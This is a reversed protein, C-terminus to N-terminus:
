RPGSQLMTCVVSGASSTNNVRWATIPQNISFITVNTGTVTPAGIVTAPVANVFPSSSPGGSFPPFLQSGPNPFQGTPDDLTVDIRAQSSLGTGALQFSLQCPNRQWDVLQWPSVSSTGGSSTVSVYNPRGMAM